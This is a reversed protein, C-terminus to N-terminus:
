LFHCMGLPINEETLKLWLFNLIPLVSPMKGTQLHQLGPPDVSHCSRRREAAFLQRLEGQHPRAGVRRARAAGHHRKGQPLVSQQPRHARGSEAAPGAPPAAQRHRGRGREGRVPQLQQQAAGHHRIRAVDADGGAAGDDGQAGAPVQVAPGIPVGSHDCIVVILNTPVFLLFGDFYKLILQKRTPCQFNVQIFDNENKCCMIKYSFLSCNAIKKPFGIFLIMPM